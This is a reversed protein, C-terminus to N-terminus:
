VLNKPMEQLYEPSLLILPTTLSNRGLRREVFEAISQNYGDLSRGVFTGKIFSTEGPVSFLASKFFSGASMPLPMLEDNKLIYRKNSTENAYVMEDDLGM